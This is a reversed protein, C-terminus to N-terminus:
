IRRSWDSSKGGGFGGRMNMKLRQARPRKPRVPSAAKVKGTARKRRPKEDAEAMRVALTDGNEILSPLVRGKPTNSSPSTEPAPADPVSRAFLADAAKIADGYGNTHSRRGAAFVGVDLFSQRQATKALTAAEQSVCRRRDPYVTRSNLKSLVFQQVCQVEQSARSESIGLSHPAENAVVVKLKLSLSTQFLSNGFIAPAASFVVRAIQM